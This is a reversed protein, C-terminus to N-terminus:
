LTWAASFGSSFDEAYDNLAAMSTPLQPKRPFSLLSQADQAPLDVAYPYCLVSCSLPPLGSAVCVVRSKERYAM